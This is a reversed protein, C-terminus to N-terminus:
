EQEEVEQVELEGQVTLVEEWELQVVTKGGQEERDEEEKVMVM